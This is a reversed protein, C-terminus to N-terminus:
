TYNTRQTAIEGYSQSFNSNIHSKKDQRYQESCKHNGRTSICTRKFVLGNIHLIIFGIPHLSQWDERSYVIDIQIQRHKLTFSDGNDRILCAHDIRKM